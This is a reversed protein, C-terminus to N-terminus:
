SWTVQIEMGTDTTLNLNITNILVFDDRLIEYPLCLNHNLQSKMDTRQFNQKKRSINSKM